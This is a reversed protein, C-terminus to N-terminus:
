LFLILTWKIYINLTSIIHGKQRLLVFLPLTTEMANTFLSFLPRRWPLSKARESAWPITSREFGRQILTWIRNSMRNPLPPAASILTRGHYAKDTDLPTTPPRFSVKFHFFPYLFSLFFINRFDQCIMRWPVPRCVNCEAPLGFSFSVFCASEPFDKQDGMRIQFIHHM